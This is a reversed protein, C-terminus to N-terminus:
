RPKPTSDRHGAPTPTSPEDLGEGVFFTAIQAEARRAELLNDLYNEYLEYYQRQSDLVQPWAARKQQFSDFYLRYADKAKPLIEDHYTTAMLMGSDYEAFTRAFRQRLKLEIRSLEAQARTLEAQAQMITGQNKDFVPLRLGLQVGAVTNNTDFNYGTQGRVTLNPISEVRERQLGIRDRAVEAEAARLEPSCALLNSLAAEQDMRQANAFDLKGELATERLEPAGVVAALEEWTAKYELEALQLNANARQSEVQARLKDPQNAQGVNVLEEVTTVAEAANKRNEKGLDLRMCRVLVDYYAIRVSYLVRYQQVMALLEAERAEQMFKARSLQLKHGTVIEQEIFMGQMEGATGNIGIQDAVYGVQPNLPLGAQFAQGRSIRVQAGAQVLTPNYAMAMQELANLTLGSPTEKDSPASTSPSGPLEPTQTRGVRPTEITLWAIVLASIVAVRIKAHSM